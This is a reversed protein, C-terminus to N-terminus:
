PYINLPGRVICLKCYSWFLELLISIIQNYGRGCNVRLGDTKFFLRLVTICM